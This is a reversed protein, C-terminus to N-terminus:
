DLDHTSNKSTMMSEVLVTNKLVGRKAFAKASMSIRLDVIRGRYKALPILVHKTVRPLPRSGAWPLKWDARYVTELVHGAKVDYLNVWCEYRPQNVQDATQARVIMSVVPDNSPSALVEHNLDFAIGTVDNSVEFPDSRAGFISGGDLRAPESISLAVDNKSSTVIAESLVFVSTVPVGAFTVRYQPRPTLGPFVAAAGACVTALFMLTLLRM